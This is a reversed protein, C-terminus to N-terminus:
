PTVGMLSLDYADVADRLRTRMRRLEAAILPRPTDIAFTRMEPFVRRTEESRRFLRWQVRDDGVLKRGWSIRQGHKPLRPKIAKM